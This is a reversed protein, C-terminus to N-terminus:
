SEGGPSPVRLSVDLPMDEFWLRIQLGSDETHLLLSYDTGTVVTPPSLFCHEGLGSIKSKFNGAVMNCIEGLADAMESRADEVELKLMHSAMRTAAEVSCHVSLIGRLQGALGVMATVEIGFPETNGSIQLHSGLMLEFVEQTSLELLTLWGDRCRHAPGAFDGATM